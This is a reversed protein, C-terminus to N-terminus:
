YVFEVKFIDGTILMSETNMARLELEAGSIKLALGRGAVAIEERGYDLLGKHNDVLVRTSGTITVRPHGGLVDGPIDFKGAMRDPLSRKKKELTLGGGKSLRHPSHFLYAQKSKSVDEEAYINRTYIHQFSPSKISERRM